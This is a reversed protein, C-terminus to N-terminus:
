DFAALLTECIHSSSPFNSLVNIKGEIRGIGNEANPCGHLCSGQKVGAGPIM